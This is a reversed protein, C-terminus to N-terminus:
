KEGLFVEDSKESPDQYMGEILDQYREEVEKRRVKLTPTIEGADLSLPEPLIAFRRITEFGALVRNREEVEDEILHRVKPHVLLEAIRDFPIGQDEAFRQIQEADLSVLATLFKRGDGCVMAQDIYMSTRLLKEINQPSVNKGGSTVIIDKKRDTVRLFGDSELRGIDGTHLWGDQDVAEATAEPQNYYGAMINRGRILIEGDPAVREEVGPIPPGVTGFRYRDPRNVNAAGGNETLGYGELVLLGLADLFEAIESSLPAGGCIFFKLQGGFREKVVPGLVLNRSLLDRLAMGSTMPEQGGRRAAVDEGVQHAWKFLQRSVWGRSEVEKLLAAHIRELIGPVVTMFTPHVETLERELVDLGSSFATCYGVSVSALVMNRALVHSLPLCLLHMDEAGIVGSMVESLAQAEFVFNDHTLMVGKPLGTTGATYVISALSNPSLEKIRKELSGPFEAQHVRGAALLQDWRIEGPGRAPGGMLIIQRISTEDLVKRVKSLQNENEIFVVTSGSDSLVHQVHEELADLHVPVTCGAAKQIGLDCIVWSQRSRSLVGVREGVSVGLSMLGHALQDTLQDAESWSTTEWRGSMSRSFAPRDPTEAVRWRFLDIFSGEV